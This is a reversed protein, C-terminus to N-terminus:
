IFEMFKNKKRALYRTADKYLYNYINKIIEKKSFSKRIRYIGRNINFNFDIFDM